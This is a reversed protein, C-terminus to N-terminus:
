GQVAVRQRPRGPWVGSPSQCGHIRAISLDGRHSRGEWPRLAHADLRQGWLIGNQGYLVTGDPAVMPATIDQPLPITQRTGGDVPMVFVALSNDAMRASVLLRKGDPMWRPATLGREGVAPTAVVRLAGNEVLAIEGKRSVVIRDSPSLDFAGIAGGAAPEPATWLVSRRGTEIDIAFLHQQNPL